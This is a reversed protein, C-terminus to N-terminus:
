PVCHIGWMTCDITAAINNPIERIPRQRDFRHHHSAFCSAAASKQEQQDNAKLNAASRGKKEDHKQRHRSSSKAWGPKAHPQYSSHQKRGAQNQPHSQQRFCKQHPTTRQPCSWEAQQDVNEEGTWHVQKLHPPQRNGSSNDGREKAILHVGPDELPRFSRIASCVNPGLRVFVCCQIQGLCAKPGGSARGILKKLWFKSGEVTIAEGPLVARLARGAPSGASRVLRSLRQSLSNRTARRPPRGVSSPKTPTSPTRSASSARREPQRM